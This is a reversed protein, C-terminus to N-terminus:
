HSIEEPLAMHENILTDLRESLRVTEVSTFGKSLGTTIMKNRLNEIQLFLDENTMM